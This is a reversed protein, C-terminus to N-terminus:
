KGICFRSFVSGLIDDVMIKGTILGLHDIAQRIDMALLDGPLANDMGQGIKELDAKVLGLAEYHRANSLIVAGNDPLEPILSRLTNELLGIGEQRMASMRVVDEGEM